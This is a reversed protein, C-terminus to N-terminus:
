YLIEFDLYKYSFIIPPYGWTKKKKKPAQKNNKQQFGHSFRQFAGVPFYAAAAKEPVTTIVTWLVVKLKEKM